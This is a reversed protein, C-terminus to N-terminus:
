KHTKTYTSVVSLYDPEQTESKKDLTALEETNDSKKTHLTNTKIYISFKDNKLHKHYSPIFTYKLVNAILIGTNQTTWM